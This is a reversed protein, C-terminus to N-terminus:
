RPAPPLSWRLLRGPQPLFVWLQRDYVCAQVSVFAAVDMQLINDGPDTRLRVPPVSPGALEIHMRGRADGPRTMVQSLDIGYFGEPSEFHAVVTLGPVFGSSSRSQFQLLPLRISRRDPETDVYEDPTRWHDHYRSFSAYGTTLIDGYPMEQSESLDDLRVRKINIDEGRRGGGKEECAQWFCNAEDRWCPGLEPLGTVTYGDAAPWPRWTITPGSAEETATVSLVGQRGPWVLMRRRPRISQGLVEDRPMDTPLPTTSWGGGCEEQWWALVSTDDNSMVPACLLDSPLPPKGPVADSLVGPGALCRGSLRHLTSLKKRSWDMEMLHLGQRDPVVVHREESSLVVSWAWDPLGGGQLPSDLECWSAPMSPNYVALQGDSLDLAFLMRSKGGMRAALFRLHGTRFPPLISEAVQGQLLDASDLVTEVLRSNEPHGFPPRWLPTDLPTDAGKRLEAGCAPCHVFESPFVSGSQAAPCPNVGTSPPHIRAAVLRDLPLQNSDSLTQGNIKVLTFQQGQDDAEWETKDAFVWM